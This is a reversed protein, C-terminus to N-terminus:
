LRKREADQSEESEGNFFDGGKISHPQKPLLILCGCVDCITDSFFGIALEETELEITSFCYDCLKMM